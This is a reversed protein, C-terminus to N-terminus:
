GVLGHTRVMPWSESLFWSQVRLQQKVRYQVYRTAKRQEEEEDDGNEYGRVETKRLYM